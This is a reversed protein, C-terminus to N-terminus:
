TIKETTKRILKIKFSLKILKEYEEDTFLEKILDEGLNLIQPNQYNEFKKLEWYTQLRTLSNEDM